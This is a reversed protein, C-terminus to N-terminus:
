RASRILQVLAACAAAAIGGCLLLAGAPTAPDPRDTAALASGPDQTLPM